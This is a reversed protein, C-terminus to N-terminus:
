YKFFDKSGAKFRHSRFSYLRPPSMASVCPRSREKRGAITDDPQDTQWSESMELESLLLYNRMAAHRDVGVKLFM